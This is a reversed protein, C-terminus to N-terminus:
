PGTLVSPLTSPTASPGKDADRNASVMRVLTLPIVGLLDTPLIGGRALLTSVTHRRASLVQLLATAVVPLALSFADSPPGDLAPELWERFVPAMPSAPTKNMATAFAAGIVAM